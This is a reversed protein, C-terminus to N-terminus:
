TTFDESITLGYGLLVVLFLGPLFLEEPDTPNIDGEAGYTLFSSHPPHRQQKGM